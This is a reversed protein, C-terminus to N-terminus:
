CREHGLESATLAQADDHAGPQNPLRDAPHGPVMQLVDHTQQMQPVVHVADLVAAISGGADVGPGAAGVCIGGFAQAKRGFGKRSQADALAPGVM